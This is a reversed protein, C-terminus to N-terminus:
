GLIMGLPAGCSHSFKHFHVLSMEWLIDVNQQFSNFILSNSMTTTSFSRQCLLQYCGPRYAAGVWPIVVLTAM